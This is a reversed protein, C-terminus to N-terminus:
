DNRLLKLNSVRKVNREKLERIAKQTKTEKALGDNSKREVFRRNSSTFTSKLDLISDLWKEGGAKTVKSLISKDEASLAETPNSELIEVRASLDDVKDSLATVIKIIEDITKEEDDTEGEESSAKTNNKPNDISTIIGNEVVITTGDELVFSGDPSAVDGVEPNGEEREVLLETGDATVIVQDVMKLDKLDKIGAKAILRQLIVRSVNMSKKAMKKNNFKSKKHATNPTIISSIFGLEKAKDMNIFIDKDMLEELDEKKSGTREVYLNVIKNQEEILSEAQRKFVESAQLIKDATMRGTYVGSDDLCGAEPNHICMHANSFAFRRELPAALLIITAMSSCEGEITATIEKGSQRLSDYIAWGELCNGGACHIRLDIKNDEKPISKIFEAIDKFCIGDMGEWDRLIVKSEEDVIDNYIRLTAM